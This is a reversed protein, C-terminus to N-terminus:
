LAVTQSPYHNTQKREPSYERCLQDWLARIRNVCNFKISIQWHRPQWCSASSSNSQKQCSESISVMEVNCASQPHCRESYCRRPHFKQQTPEAAFVSSVLVLTWFLIWTSVKRLLGSSTKRHSVTKWHHTCGNDDWQYQDSHLCCRLINTDSLRPADKLPLLYRHWYETNWGSNEKNQMKTHLSIYIKLILFKEQRTM